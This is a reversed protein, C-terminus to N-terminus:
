DEGYDPEYDEMEKLEIRERESDTLAFPLWRQPERETPAYFWAQVLGLAWGFVGVSPDPGELLEFECELDWTESGRTFIVTRDHTM